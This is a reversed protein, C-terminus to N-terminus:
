FLTLQTSAIISQITKLESYSAELQQPRLLLAASYGRRREIILHTTGHIPANIIPLQETSM